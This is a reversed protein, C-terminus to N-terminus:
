TRETYISTHKHGSQTFFLQHCSKFIFSGFTSYARAVDVIQQVASSCSLLTGACVGLGLVASAGRLDLRHRVSRAAPRGRCTLLPPRDPLRPAGAGLGLAFGKAGDQVGGIIPAAVLGAVGALVGKAISKGGSSLGAKLDKPRRLSFVDQFDAKFEEPPARSQVTTAM